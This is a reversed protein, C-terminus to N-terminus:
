HRAEPLPTMHIGESVVRGILRGPRATSLLQRGPERVREFRVPGHGGEPLGLLQFVQGIVEQGGRGAAGMIGTQAPLVDAVLQADRPLGSILSEGGTARGVVSPPSFVALEDFLDPLQERGDIRTVDIPDAGFEGRAHQGLDGWGGHPCEPGIGDVGQTGEVAQSRGRYPAITGRAEHM